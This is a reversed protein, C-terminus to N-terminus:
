LDVEKKTISNLSAIGRILVDPLMFIKENFYARQIIRPNIKLTYCLMFRDEPKMNSHMMKFFEAREEGIMSGITGGLISYLIPKQINKVVWEVSDQYTSTILTAKPISEQKNEADLNELNRQFEENVEQCFDVGVLEIQQKQRIAARAVKISKIGTASGLDVYAFPKDFGMVATM